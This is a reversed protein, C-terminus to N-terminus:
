AASQAKQLPTKLLLLALKALWNNGVAARSMSTVMQVLGESTKLAVNGSFGDCVVVDTGGKFIGNGEIYGAYNILPEADLLARQMRFIPM